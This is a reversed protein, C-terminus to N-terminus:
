IIDRKWSRGLGHRVNVLNTHENPTMNCLDCSPVFDLMLHIRDNMQNLTKLQSNCLHLFHVNGISLLLYFVMEVYKQFDGLYGHLYDFYSEYCEQLISPEPFVALNRVVDGTDIGLFTDGDKILPYFTRM